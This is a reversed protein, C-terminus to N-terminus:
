TFKILGRLKCRVTKEDNKLLLHHYLKNVYINWSPLYNNRSSSGRALGILVLDSLKTLDVNLLFTDLETLKAANNCTQIFTFLYRLQENDDLKLDIQLETM